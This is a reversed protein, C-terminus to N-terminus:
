AAEKRRQLEKQAEQAILAELEATSLEAAAKSAEDVKPPKIGDVYQLVLQAARVRSALSEEDDMAGAIIGEMMRQIRDPDGIVEKAQKEWQARFAPEARWKRLYRSSVGIEDALAEMTKPSREREPTLLWQLLRVKRADEFGFELEDTM